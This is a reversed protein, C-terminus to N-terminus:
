IPILDRAVRESLSLSMGADKAFRPWNDLASRVDALADLPRRVGFRDAIELLDPRTVDQFKGNVSM